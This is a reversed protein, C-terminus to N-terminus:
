RLHSESAAKSNWPSMPMRTSCFRIELFMGHRRQLKLVLHGVGPSSGVFDTPTGLPSPFAQKEPDRQPCPLPPLYSDWASPPFQHRKHWRSCSKWRISHSALVSARLCHHHPPPPTPLSAQNISPKPTASSVRSLGGVWRRSRGDTSPQSIQIRSVEM